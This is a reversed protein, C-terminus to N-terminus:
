FGEIVASDDPQQDPDRGDFVLFGQTYPVDDMGASGAKRYLRQDSGAFMMIISGMSGM